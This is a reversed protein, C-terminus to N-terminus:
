VGVSGSVDLIEGNILYFAASLMMLCSRVRHKFVATVEMQQVQDASDDM